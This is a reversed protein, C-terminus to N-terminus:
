TELLDLMCSVRFKFRSVPFRKKQKRELCPLRPRKGRCGRSECDHVFAGGGYGHIYWCAGATPFLWIIRTNPHTLNSQLDDSNSTAAFAM